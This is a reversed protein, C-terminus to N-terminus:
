RDGKFIEYDPEGLEFPIDNVKAIALVLLCSDAVTEHINLDRNNNLCYYKETIIHEMFQLFRAETNVHRYALRLLTPLVDLLVLKGKEINCRVEQLHILDNFRNNSCVDSYHNKAFLYFHRDFNM